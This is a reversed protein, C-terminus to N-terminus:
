NTKSKSQKTSIESSSAEDCEKEPKSTSNLCEIEGQEILKEIDTHKLRIERHGKRTANTLVAFVKKNGKNELGSFKYTGGKYTLLDNLLLQMNISWFHKTHKLGDRNFKM